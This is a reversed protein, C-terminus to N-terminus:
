LAKVTIREESSEVVLSSDRALVQAFSDVDDADFVGSYVRASAAPGELVIRKRSYRNFEGIIHELSQERFILRRERWAVVEQVNAVERVSMKGGHSIMAEESTGLIRVSKSRSAADPIVPVIPGAGSDASGAGSKAPAADVAVRGQIVAVDTGDPRDYVNFETGVAQILADSTYVRFPRAADHHVRFLAEGRVLRVDRSTSSFLIAVRSNTNLQIVSGDDLEFARQEGISTEFEAGSDSRLDHWIWGVILLSMLGAALAPWRGRRWWHAAPAAPTQRRPLVAVRPDLEGLLADVNFERNPDVDCLARDLSLMLLFDQVNPPSEKLWVVFAAREAQTPDRLTELWASARHALLQELQRTQSDM